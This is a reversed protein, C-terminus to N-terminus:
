YGKRWIIYNDFIEDEAGITMKIINAIQTDM